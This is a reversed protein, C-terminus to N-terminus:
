FISYGGRKADIALLAVTDSAVQRVRARLEAVEAAEDETLTHKGKLEKLRAVDAAFVKLGYSRPFQPDLCSVNM